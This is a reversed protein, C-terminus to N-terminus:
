RLDHCMVNKMPDCWLWSKALLAVDSIDVICDFNLDEPPSNVTSCENDIITVLAKTSIGQYQPDASQASIKIDTLHLSEFWEDDQAAVQVSV